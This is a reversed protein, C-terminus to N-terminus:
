LFARTITPPERAAITTNRSSTGPFQCPARQHVSRPWEGRNSTRTEKERKGVFLGLEKLGDRQNPGEALEGGPGGEKFLPPSM